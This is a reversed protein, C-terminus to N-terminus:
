IRSTLDGTQEYKIRVFRLGIMGGSEGIRDKFAWQEAQADGDLLLAAGSFAEDITFGLTADDLAWVAITEVRRKTSRLDELPTDAPSVVATINRADRGLPTFTVPEGFLTLLDPAADSLFEADFTSPM